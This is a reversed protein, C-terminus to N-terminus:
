ACYLWLTPLPDRMPAETGANDSVLPEVLIWKLEWHVHYGCENMGFPCVPM